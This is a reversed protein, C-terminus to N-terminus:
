NSPWTGTPNPRVFPPEGGTHLRVGEALPQAAVDGARQPERAIDRPLESSIIVIARRHRCRKGDKTPVFDIDVGDPASAPSRQCRTNESGIANFFPASCM